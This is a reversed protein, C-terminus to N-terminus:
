INDTWKPLKITMFVTSREQSLIMKTYSINIGDM